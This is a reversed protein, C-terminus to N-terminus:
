EWYIYEWTKYEVLVNKLVKDIEKMEYISFEIMNKRTDYKYLKKTTVIGTTMDKWDEEELTYVPTYSYNIKYKIENKDDFINGSTYRGREDFFYVEYFGDARYYRKETLKGATYIYIYRYETKGGAIYKTDELLNGKNDYLTIYKRIEETKNDNNDYKYSVKKILKESGDYMEEEILNKKDYKYKYLSLVKDKNDYVTKTTVLKNNYNYITKEIMVGGVNKIIEMSVLGNKYQKFIQSGDPNYIETGNITEFSNYSNFERFVLSGDEKYISTETKLGKIDYKVIKRERVKKTTNNNAYNFDGYIIATYEKVKGNLGELAWREYNRIGYTFGFALFSIFIIYKITKKM